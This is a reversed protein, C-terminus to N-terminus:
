EEQKSSMRRALEAIDIAVYFGLAPKDGDAVTAFGDLFLGYGRLGANVTFTDINDAKWERQYTLGAHLRLDSILEDTSYSGSFLVLQDDENKVWTAVLTAKGREWDFLLLFNTIDPVLTLENLGTDYVNGTAQANRWGFTPRWALLIKGSATRNFRTTCNAKVGFEKDFAIMSFCCNLERVDDMDPVEQYKGGVCLQLLDQVGVGIQGNGINSHNLNGYGGRVFFNVLDIGSYMSLLQDDGTERRLREAIGGLVVLDHIKSEVGLGIGDEYEGERSGFVSIETKSALFPVKARIGARYTSLGNERFHRSRFTFEDTGAWFGEMRYDPSNGKSDYQSEVYVLLDDPIASDPIVQKSDKSISENREVSNEAETAIDDPNTEQAYANTTLTIAGALIGTALKRSTM